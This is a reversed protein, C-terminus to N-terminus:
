LTHNKERLLPLYTTYENPTNDKSYFWGLLIYGRDEDNSDKAYLGVEEEGIYGLLEWYMTYKKISSKTYEIYGVDITGLKKGYLKFHDFM